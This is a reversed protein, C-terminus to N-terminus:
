FMDLITEETEPTIGQFSKLVEIGIHKALPPPVSNGIQRYQNAFSGIFTFDEPFGQLRACEAVTLRRLYDPVDTPVVQNTKMLNYISAM